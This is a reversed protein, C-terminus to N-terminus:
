FFFTAHLTLTGLKAPRSRYDGLGCNRVININESMGLLLLSFPNSLSKEPRSSHGCGIAQNEMILSLPFDEEGLNECAAAM